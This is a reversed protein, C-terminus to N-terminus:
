RDINFIINREYIWRKSSYSQGFGAGRYAKASEQDVTFLMSANVEPRLSENWMFAGEKNSLYQEQQGRSKPISKPKGAFGM